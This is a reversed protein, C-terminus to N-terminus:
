KSGVNRANARSDSAWHLSSQVWPRTAWTVFRPNNRLTATAASSFHVLALNSLGLVAALLHVYAGVNIGIAALAGAKRGQAISRGLLLAMDPGPVVVLVISAGVFLLYTELDIM